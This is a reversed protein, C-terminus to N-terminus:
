AHLGQRFYRCCLRRITLCVGSRLMRRTEVTCSCSEVLLHRVVLFMWYLIATLRLALLTCSMRLTMLTGPLLIM